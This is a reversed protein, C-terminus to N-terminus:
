SVELTSTDSTFVLVMHINVPLRQLFYEQLFSSDILTAKDGLLQQM